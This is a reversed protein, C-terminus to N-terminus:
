ILSYFLPVISKCHYRLTLPCEATTMERSTTSSGDRRRPVMRQPFSTVLGCTRTRVESPTTARCRFRRYTKATRMAKLEPLHVTDKVFILIISKHFYKHYKPDLHFLGFNPVSINYKILNSGQSTQPKYMCSFENAHRKKM